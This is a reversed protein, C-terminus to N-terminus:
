DPLWALARIEGLRRKLSTWSEGGDTSRWIQGL